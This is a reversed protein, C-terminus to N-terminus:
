DGPGRGARARRLGRYSWNFQLPHELIVREMWARLRARLEEEGIPGGGRLGTELGALGTGPGGKGGPAPNWPPHFRFGATPVRRGAPVGPREEKADELNWVELPLFLAGQRLAWRLLRFDVPLLFSGFLELLEPGGEKGAERKGGERLGDGRVRGKAPSGLQDAMVALIGKERTFRRLFPAAAGRPIAEKGERCRGERLYRTLPPSFAEATLIGFPRQPPKRPVKHLLEVPGSHIGLLLVPRGTRLAAEYHHSGEVQVQDRPLARGHFCLCTRVSRLREHYYAALFSSGGRSKEGRIGAGVPDAGPATNGPPFAGSRALCRLQASVERAHRPRLLPYFSLAARGLGSFLPWLFPSRLTFALVRLVLVALRGAGSRLRAGKM